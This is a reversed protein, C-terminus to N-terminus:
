YTQRPLAGWGCINGNCLSTNYISGKKAPAVCGGSRARRLSSRKGSPYYNKTSIPEALPLGVKYASKGVAVSKKANVYMSSPVPAIYNMHTSVPLYKGTNKNYFANPLSAKGALSQLALTQSSFGTARKYQQRANTNQEAYPPDQSSYFQPPTPRLGPLTGYSHYPITAPYKNTNLPGYVPTQIIDDYQTM